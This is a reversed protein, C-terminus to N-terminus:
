GLRRMALGCATFYMPAQKEITPPHLQRSFKMGAFPSLVVVPLQMDHAIAERLGPECAGGGIIAVPGLERSPMDALFFHLARRVQEALQAIFPRCVALAYDSPLTQNIKQQEAEELSLGYHQAISQTLQYGGVGLESDHIVETHRVIQLHCRQGGIHILAICEDPSTKQCQAMWRRAARCVAYSEVDLVMPELGALAAVHHLAEVRAKRTAVLLVEREDSQPHDPQHDLVGFDWCMEEAPFPLYQSIDAQIQWELAQGDWHRPLQIKKRMVVHQPLAFAAFKTQIGTHSILKRMADAVVEPQLIDGDMVCGPALHESACGELVWQGLLNRSLEVMKVSSNSIDWGTLQPRYRFFSTGWGM